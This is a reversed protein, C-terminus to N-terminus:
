SIWVPCVLWMALMLLLLLLALVSVVGCAVGAAACARSCLVASWGRPQSSALPLTSPSYRCPRNSSLWNVCARSPLVAGVSSSVKLRMASKIPCCKPAFVSCVSRLEAVGDVSAAASFIASVGSINAGFYKLGEIARSITKGTTTSALLLLVHKDKIMMQMNDRFIMQGSKDYEPTVVYITKHSNMSVIGAGTLEDALYAGIVETGDMCVITDVITTAAYEHGLAKAVEKAESQRTKMTTMDIYYNIHSNPTVFHGSIVKLTVDPYKKSFIKNYDKM